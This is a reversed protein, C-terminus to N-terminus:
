VVLIGDVKFDYKSVPICLDYGEGLLDNKIDDRDLRFWEGNVRYKNFKKHLFGELKRAENQNKANIVFVAKLKRPNGTQLEKMRNPLSAACGIKMFDGDSVFYVCYEMEEVWVLKVQKGIYREFMLGKMRNRIM